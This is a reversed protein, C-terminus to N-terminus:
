GRVVACHTAARWAARRGTGYKWPTKVSGCSRWASTKAM